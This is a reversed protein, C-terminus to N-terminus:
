KEVNKELKSTKVCFNSSWVPGEERRDLFPRKSSFTSPPPDTGGWFFVMCCHFFVCLSLYISIKSSMFIKQSEQFFLTVSIFLLLFYKQSERLIEHHFPHCLFVTDLSLLFCCRIDKEPRLHPSLLRMPSRNLSVALPLRPTSLSLEGAMQARSDEPVGMMLKISPHYQLFSHTQEDEYGQARTSENRYRM